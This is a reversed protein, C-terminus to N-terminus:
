AWFEDEGMARSLQTRELYAELRKKVDKKHALDDAAKKNKPATFSEIEADNPVFDLIQAM